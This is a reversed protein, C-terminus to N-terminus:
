SDFYNYLIYFLDSTTTNDMVSCIIKYVVITWLQKIYNMVNVNCSGFKYLITCTSLCPISLISLVIRTMVSM